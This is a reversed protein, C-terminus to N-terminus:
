LFSILWHGKRRFVDNVDHGETFQFHLKASIVLDLKYRMVLPFWEQAM